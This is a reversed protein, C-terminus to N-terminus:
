KKRKGRFFRTAIIACFSARDVLIRESIPVTKVQIEGHAGQTDWPLRGRWLKPIVELKEAARGGSKPQAISQHLAFKKQEGFLPKRLSVWSGKLFISYPFVTGIESIRKM